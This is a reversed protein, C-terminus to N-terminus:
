LTVLAFQEKTEPEGQLNASFGVTGTKLETFMAVAHADVFKLLKSYASSPYKFRNSKLPCVGFLSCKVAQARLIM